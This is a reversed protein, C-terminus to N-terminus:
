KDFTVTARGTLWDIGIRAEARGNRLDFNAETATGDPRFVILSPGDSAEIVMGRPLTTAAGDETQYSRSAPDILFSAPKGTTMARSRTQDLKTVFASTADQLVRAKSSGTLMPLAIWLGISAILLAALVELLTFGAASTELKETM